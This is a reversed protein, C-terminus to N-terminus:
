KTRYEFISFLIYVFYLLYTTLHINNFALKYMEHPMSKQGVIDLKDYTILYRILLANIIKTM